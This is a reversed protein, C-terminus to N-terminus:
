ADAGPRISPANAALERRAQRENTTSIGLRRDRDQVHQLGIQGDQTFDMM